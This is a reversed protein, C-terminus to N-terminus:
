DRGGAIMFMFLLEDGEALRCDFKNRALYEEENKLVQIVPNVEGNDSMILQRFPAGFRNGLYGLADGFNAGDFTIDFEDSGIQRTLESLGFFKVKICPM